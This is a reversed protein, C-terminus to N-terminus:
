LKYKVESCYERAVNYSERFDDILQLYNSSLSNGFTGHVLSNFKRLPKLLPLLETPLILSLQDCNKLITRCANGEYTGGHYGRRICGLGNVWEKYEPWYGSIFTSVHNVVGMLMHLEPLPIVELILKTKDEENVLCPNM